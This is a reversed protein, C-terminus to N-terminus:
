SAVSPTASKPTPKAVPPELPEIPEPSPDSPLAFSEDSISGFLEWYDSPWSHQADEKVLQAIYKSVSAREEKARSRALQATRSDLYLSLQPV